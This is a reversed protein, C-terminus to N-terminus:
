STHPRALASCHRIPWIALLTGRFLVEGPYDQVPRWLGVFLKSNSAAPRDLTPTSASNLWRLPIQRSGMSGAANGRRACQKQSYSEQLHSVPHDARHSVKLDAGVSYADVTRGLM